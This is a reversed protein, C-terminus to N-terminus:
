GCVSKWGCAEYLHCRMLTQPNMGQSHGIYEGKCVQVMRGAQKVDLGGKKLCEKMCDIWKKQTWCVSHSGAYCVRKAIRDNEM